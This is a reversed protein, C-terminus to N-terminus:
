SALTWQRPHRKNHKVVGARQMVPLFLPATQTQMLQTLQSTTLPQYRKLLRIIEPWTVTDPNPKYRYGKRGM